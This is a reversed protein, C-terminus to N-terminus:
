RSVLFPSCRAHMAQKKRGVARGGGLRERGPGGCAGAQLRGLLSPIPWITDIVFAELWRCGKRETGERWHGWTDTPPLSVGPLKVGCDGCKPATGRKKIHLIRLDGGPTKIVRTRNSTTNYRPAILTTLTDTKMDSPIAPQSPCALDSPLFFDYARLM